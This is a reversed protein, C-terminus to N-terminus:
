TGISALLAQVDANYQAPVLDDILAERIAKLMAEPTPDKVAIAGDLKADRVLAFVEQFATNVQAVVKMQANRRLQNELSTLRPDSM